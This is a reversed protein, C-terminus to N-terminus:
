QPLLITHLEIGAAAADRFVMEKTIKGRPYPHPPADGVLIVVKKASEWQLGHLAGDLAEYVADGLDATCGEIRTGSWRGNGSRVGDRSITVKDGDIDATYTVDNVEVSITTAM